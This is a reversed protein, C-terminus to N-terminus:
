PLVFIKPTEPYNVSTQEREYATFACISRAWVEAEATRFCDNMILSEDDKAPPLSRFSSEGENDGRDDDGRLVADEDGCCRGGRRSLM